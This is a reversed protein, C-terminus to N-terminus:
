LGELTEIQRCLIKRGGCESTQQPTAVIDHAPIFCRKFDM